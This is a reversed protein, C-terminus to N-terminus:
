RCDPSFAPNGHDRRDHGTYREIHTAHTFRESIRILFSIRM